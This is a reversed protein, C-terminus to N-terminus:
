IVAFNLTPKQPSPLVLTGLSFGRPVSYLVLLSLGCLVGVRHISDPGCQHSTLTRVVVGGSSLSHNTKTRCRMLQFVPALNELRDNLRAIAIMDNSEVTMQFSSYHEVGFQTCSDAICHVTFLFYFPEYQNLIQTYIGRDEEIVTVVLSILKPWFELNKPGSPPMNPAHLNSESALERDYLESCNAYLYSYSAKM